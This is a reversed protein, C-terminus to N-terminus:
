NQKEMELNESASIFGWLAYKKIKDFDSNANVNQSSINRTSSSLRVQVTSTGSKTAQPNPRSVSILWILNHAMM